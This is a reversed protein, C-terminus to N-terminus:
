LILAEEWGRVSNLRAVATVGSLDDLTVVQEAL